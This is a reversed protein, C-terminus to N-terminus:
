KPFPYYYHHNAQEIAIISNPHLVHLTQSYRVARDATLQAHLNSLTRVVLGAVPNVM